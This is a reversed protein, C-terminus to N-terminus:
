QIDRSNRFSWVSLVRELGPMVGKKFPVKFGRFDNTRFGGSLPSLTGIWLAGGKYTEKM